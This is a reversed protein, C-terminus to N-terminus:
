RRSRHAPKRKASSKRKAAPKAAPCPWAQRTAAFVAKAASVQGAEPHDRLYDLTTERLQAITVEAPICSDLHDAERTANYADVAGTVYAICEYSKDVYDAAGRPVSCLRQLEDGSYFGASAAASWGIAALGAVWWRRRVSPTLAFWLAVTHM